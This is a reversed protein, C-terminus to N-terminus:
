RPNLVIFPIIMEELSVGGHQFTNKFYNVYKNYNNKFVFYHDGKAFIYHNDYRDDVFRIEEAIGTVDRFVSELIGM